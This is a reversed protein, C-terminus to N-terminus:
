RVLAARLTEVYGAFALMEGQTPPNSFGGGFPGVGNPNQATTAIAEDLQQTSVDGAPGQPGEPGEIGQPGEPGQEGPAGDAGRPIGFIFHVESGDFTTGVTAPEGPDLTNM